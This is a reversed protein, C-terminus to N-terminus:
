PERGLYVPDTENMPVGQRGEDDHRFGDCM